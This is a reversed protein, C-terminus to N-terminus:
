AQEAPAAVLAVTGRAGPRGQAYASGLLPRLPLDFSQNFTTQLYHLIIGERLAWPCVDVSDINLAKMAARAALAGAVVQGSRSRSVGQLKARQAARLAALRPIWSELDRATVTRPVFPGKRQAPAGSLRALQKFTKSTGIARDPIGEWLLRDAVERLTANVHRRLAALQEHGPPDDPLFSRTLRGNLRTRGSIWFGWCCGRSSGGALCVICGYCLAFKARIAAESDRRAYRRCSPWAPRREAVPGVAPGPDGAGALPGARPCRAASSASRRGRATM